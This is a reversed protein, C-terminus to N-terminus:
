HLLTEILNKDREPDYEGDINSTVFAGEQDQLYDTQNVLIFTEGVYDWLQIEVRLSKGLRNCYSLIYKTNYSM